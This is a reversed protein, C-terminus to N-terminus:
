QVLAVSSNSEAIVKDGRQLQIGETVSDLVINATSRGAEVATVRLKGIVAGDRIVDLISGSVVGEKDGANLIVFGLDRYISGVTTRMSPFSAGSTQLLSLNRVKALDKNLATEKSTLNALRSEKIAVAESLEALESRMGEVKPVLEKPNPLQELLDSADAIKAENVKSDEELSVIERKLVNLEDSAKALEKKVAKNQKNYDATAIEADSLRAKEDALEAETAEQRQSERALNSTEVNFAEKNKFALFATVLLTVAAIIGIIKSM